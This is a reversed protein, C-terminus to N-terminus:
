NRLIICDSTNRQQRKGLHQGFVQSRGVERNYQGWCGKISALSGGLVSFQNCLRVAFHYGSWKHFRAGQVGIAMPVTDPTDKQRTLGNQLLVNRQAVAGM